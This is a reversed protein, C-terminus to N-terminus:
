DLQESIVCTGTDALQQATENANIQRVDVAQVQCTGQPSLRMVLLEQVTRDTGERDTSVRWIRLIAAAPVGNMLRWELKDGFVREAGRWSIPHGFKRRDASRGIAVGAVNGEDTFEVAYGAPGPCRWINLASQSGMDRCATGQTSTYISGQALVPSVLMVLAIVGVFSKM